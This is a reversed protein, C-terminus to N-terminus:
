RFNILVKDPDGSLMPEQQRNNIFSEESVNQKLYAILERNTIQGKHPRHMNREVLARKGPSLKYACRGLTNNIGSLYHDPIAKILSSALKYATVILKEKLM